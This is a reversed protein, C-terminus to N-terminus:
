GAGLILAVHAGMLERPAMGDLPGVVAIKLDRAFRRAEAEFGARYMVVSRVYDSRPANGTSGVLYGRERVRLSAEAAAGSRGNGNLVLVATEGRALKPEAVSAPQVAAPKPEPKAAAAQPQSREIAADKAKAALPEGLLAVGVVVLVVLETVAVATAVLATTRWPRVEEFALSHEM